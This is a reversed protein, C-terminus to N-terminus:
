IVKLSQLLQADTSVVMRMEEKGEENNEEVFGGKSVRMISKGSIVGTSEHEETCVGDIDMIDYRDSFWELSQKHTCRCSWSEEGRGDEYLVCETNDELLM